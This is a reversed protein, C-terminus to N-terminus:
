GGMRNPDWSTKSPVSAFRALGFEEIGQVPQREEVLDAVAEGMLASFKFGEGSDGCAVVVRGVRDIVFRGDPSDTWTCLQADRVDPRLFGLDRLARSRIDATRALDPERDSDGPSWRRVPRDLGVKYGVGPTPMAYIGPAEQNPGDFLCPVQDYASPQLPHGFHVVQELYPQLPLEIDVMSLVDGAWPGPALVVRDCKVHSRDDLRVDVDRPEGEGPVDLDVVTRGVVLTGANQEFFRRQAGLMAAALVIGAEPVWVAARGDPRLGPIWHGVDKSEVEVLEVGAARMAEAVDPVSHEDRWLLGLRRQVEIGTREHLRAMAASAHRSLRAYTQRRDALRWLRTPGASSGLAHGPTGRDICWVQHGRAALVAAASLGWAGAGVVVVRMASGTSRRGSM